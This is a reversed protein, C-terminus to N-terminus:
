EDFKQMKPDPMLFLLTGVVFAWFAASLAVAPASFIVCLLIILFTSM